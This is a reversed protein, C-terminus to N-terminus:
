KRMALHEGLIRRMELQRTICYQIIDDRHNEKIRTFNLAIKPRSDVDKRITVIKARFLIETKGLKKPLYLRGGVVDNMNFMETNLSYFSVGGGSVDYTTFNFSGTEEIDLSLSLSATVRFFQRRQIKNLSAADPKVFCLENNDFKLVTEFVYGEKQDNYIKMEVRKGSAQNLPQRNENVPHVIIVSNDTVKVIRTYYTMRDETELILMQNVWFLANPNSVM